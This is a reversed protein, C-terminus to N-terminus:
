AVKKTSRKKGKPALGLIDLLAAHRDEGFELVLERGDELDFLISYIEGPSGTVAPHDKSRLTFTEPLHVPV